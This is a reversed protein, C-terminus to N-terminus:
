IAMKAKLSGHSNYNKLIFDCYEYKNIIEDFYVKSNNEKEEVKNKEEEINEEEKNSIILKPLEFPTKEIQEKILDIHDTYIHTDGITIIVRDPKKNTLHAFLYLLASTSAINFPLGLFVDSSRQYMKVSLNDEEVYFQYLVHCPPLAMKNLQGVNWGSIIIRRNNPDNKILNLCESIQDIGKDKYDSHCDIYPANWHRWQFGYIAGCDGEEYPLNLSELYEKSSNGKWINVGLNELYKSDTNGRLFWLLEEIIGRFFMKKTTLLPFYESVDIDLETGFYSIVNGSRTKRLKGKNLIKNVLNKYLIDIHNDDININMNMNMNMNM